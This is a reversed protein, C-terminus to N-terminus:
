KELIPVVLYTRFMEALADAVDDSECLHRICAGTGKGRRAWRRIEISIGIHRFFDFIGVCALYGELGWNWGPKYEAPWSTIKGDEGTFMMYLSDTGADYSFKVGEIKELDYM